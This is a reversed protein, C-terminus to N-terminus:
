QKVVKTRVVKGSQRIEVIYIGSMFQDGFRYVQGVSGRQQDVMKGNMDFIKIDVVDKDNGSSIKLNFYHESPNPSVFVELKESVESNNTILEGRYLVNCYNIKVKSNCTSVNGNNDKITWNIYSTGPNFYGSANTGTGFRSTAGTINYKISTIGCNDSATLEPVNYQNNSVKCFTQDQPCNALPNQSDLVKVKQISSNTNGSNDTATWKVYTVGVPFQAPADNTISAVGCNDSAFANGLNVNSAYCQGSAAYVTKDSPADIYPKKADNVIVNFSSTASNGARDTVIYVITSVGVNFWKTGVYSGGCQSSNMQTAGTIQWTVSAISCNDTIWPYPICVYTGCYNGYANAAINQPSNITPAINDVVTVTFNCSKSNGAADKATYVVTTIGANFNKTGVFNIGQSSSHKSTAGTMTWTLKVVGCNDSFTPDPVMVTAVCNNIVEINGPCNIVPAQNDKVTVKQTCTKKNGSNDTVTWKVYTIGKPFQAPADNTVSIVGCNDSANPEGLDVNSAYCQDPDTNVVKDAPCQIVPLVNEKVTVDFSCISQNGWIDTIIYTVTTIGAKFTKTGVYNVGEFPSEDQTAGTRTWVLSAVECNDAFTPNTTTIVKSCNTGANRSVNGQCNIVPPEEDLVTVMFSCQTVSGVVDTATVTVVTTTGAAFFSGPAHSYSVTVEPCNITVAYNIHAGCQGSETGSYINDPCTVMGGNCVATGLIVNESRFKKHSNEPLDKAIIGDNYYVHDGNDVLLQLQSTSKLPDPVDIISEFSGNASLLSLDTSRLEPVDNANGTWTYLPFYDSGDHPGAIILYQGSANKKIERIGLGGLYLEIPEGFLAPGASPNGSVLSALNTVPVILAKNRSDTPVIPARFCIYATVNDPAMVIGEINFGSGDEIEPIVGPAASAAFGFYDAGFGHIDNADWNLLDTRLGDYRGVYSLVTSSGSGSVDTAFLRYRNVRISGSSSNSHSALWYIRNGVRVSSEIDTERPVGGSLDTLGLSSTYDFEKLPLGSNHRDYLRLVQDEDDAVLMYNADIMQATSADAAGTHFRTIASVSAASAGYNLVYSTNNTGDNVTITINSYGVAAPTIKLNRSAGNGTLNLNALPVVTTNSSSVTVTLNNVATADDSIIFDIGAFKAPDTPDDIVGSIAFPSAPSTSANGDIFNTTTTVNIIIGPAGVAQASSIKSFFMLLILLICTNAATYLSKLFAKQNFSLSAYNHSM